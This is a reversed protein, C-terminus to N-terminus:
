RLTLCWWALLELILRAIDNIRTLMVWSLNVALIYCLYGLIDPLISFVLILGLVFIVQLIIHSLQAM